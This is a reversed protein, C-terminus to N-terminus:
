PSSSGKRVEIPGFVAEGQSVTLRFDCDGFQRNEFRADPIPFVLIKWANVELLPRPDTKKYASESPLSTDASDYDLRIESPSKGFVQVQIEAPGAGKGWFRDDVDYCVQRTEPSPVIGTFTVGTQDTTPEVTYECGKDRIARIAEDAGTGSEEAFVRDSAVFPALFPVVNAPPTALVPRRAGGVWLLANRLIRSAVPDILSKEVLKLQCLLIRGEGQEVETVVEKWSLAKSDPVVDALVTSRPVGSTASETLAYVTTAVVGDTGWEAFDERRVGDFLPHEALRPNVRDIGTPWGDPKLLARGGPFPGSFEWRGKPPEQDLVLLRGGAEIWAQLSPWARHIYSDFARPAIVLGAISQLQGLDNFTPIEIKHTKLLEGLTGRTDYLALGEAVDKPSPDAFSHSAIRISRETTAMDHSGSVLRVRVKATQLGEIDPLRLPISRSLSAYYPVTGIPAEGRIPSSPDGPGFVECVLLGASVTGAQIDDNAVTLTADLIEGSYYHARLSRVAVITPRYARRIAALIPKPASAGATLPNFFWNACSYPFLGAIRNVAPSRLARAEEIFREIRNSQYEMLASADDGPAGIRMRSAAEERPDPLIQGQGDSSFGAHLESCVWPVTGDKVGERYSALQQLFTSWDSNRGSYWGHDAHWDEIRAPLAGRNNSEAIVVRSLGFVSKHIEEALGSLFRGAADFADANRRGIAAQNGAGNSWVVLSPHNRLGRAMRKIEATAQELFAENAFNYPGEHALLPGEVWALLGLEDCLSLWKPSPPEDAFRVARVGADKLAQLHARALEESVNEVHPPSGAGFLFYPRGNLRFAGRHEQFTRFGFDVVRQDVEKGGALLKLTLRHLHPTEPSWPKVGPLNPISVTQHHYKKSDFQVRERRPGHVVRGTAKEEILIELTSGGIAAESVSVDLSLSQIKPNVFVDLIREKSHISLSVSRHIGGSETELGLPIQSAPVGTEGAPNRKLVSKDAVRVALVNTAPSLLSASFELEFPDFAGLHKGVFTGNLWVSARASVGEFRLVGLLGQRGPETAGGEPFLDDPAQFRLRYWAEGNHGPFKAPPRSPDMWPSEQSPTDWYGPVSVLAWSADPLETASYQEALQTESRQSAIEPTIPRIRWNGDLSLTAAFVLQPLCGLLPAALTWWRGQFM